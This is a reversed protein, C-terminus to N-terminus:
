ALIDIIPNEKVVATPIVDQTEIKEEVDKKEQSTPVEEMKQPILSQKDSVVIEMELPKEEQPVVLERPIFISGTPIIPVVGLGIPIKGEEYQVPSNSESQPVTQENIRQGKGPLGVSPKVIGTIINEMTINM